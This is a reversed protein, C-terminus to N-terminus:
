RQHVKPPSLCGIACLKIAEVLGCEAEVVELKMALDSVLLVEDLVEDVETFSILHIGEINSRSGEYEVKPIIPQFEIEVGENLEEVVVHRISEFRRNAFTLHVYM